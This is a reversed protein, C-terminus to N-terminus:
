IPLPKEGSVLTEIMQEPTPARRFGELMRDAESRYDGAWASVTELTLPKRHDRFEPEWGQYYWRVVREYIATVNRVLHGRDFLIVPLRNFLRILISHSVVNWYFAYEACLLLSILRNFPCFSLIDVGDVTPMRSVVLQVFEDPAILIPHRGAALADVLNGVVIDTFRSGEFMTQTEYDTRSLIFLWHPRSDSGEDEGSSGLEPCVLKANFFSVSRSDAAAVDHEPVDCFAPYLHPADRFIKECHSFHTRLREDEVRKIGRMKELDLESSEEPIQISVLSHPDHRSLMGLFPDSTVVGCGRERLTAALRELDERSLIGHISFLYASCLFVVDPEEADVVRLIDEM